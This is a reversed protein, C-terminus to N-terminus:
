LDYGKKKMETRFREIVVDSFKAAWDQAAKLSQEIAKPEETLMKQGVPSKYFALIAKLDAETFHQAYVKAVENNIEATKPAYERNLQEAVQNLPGILQPNTPVFTEKARQIVGPILRDFMANGGKLAVLEKAAAIAGATQAQAVGGFALCAFAVAAALALRSISRNIAHDISAFTM